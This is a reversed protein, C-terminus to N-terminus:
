WEISYCDIGKNTVTFGKQKLLAVNEDYLKIADIVVSHTSRNSDIERQLLNFLVRSQAIVNADHSRDQVRELIRISNM